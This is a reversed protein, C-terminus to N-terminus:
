KAENLVSEIFQTMLPTPSTTQLKDFTLGLLEATKDRNLFYMFGHEEIIGNRILKKVLTKGIDHGSIRADDIKGKFRAMTGKSHSRFTILIKRLKVFASKFEETYDGDLKVDTSFESFPPILKSSTNISLQIDDRNLRISPRHGSSLDLNFRNCEFFVRTDKYDSDDDYSQENITIDNSITVSNCICVMPPVIETSKADLILNVSHADITINSLLNGPTFDSVDSIVSTCIFEKNDNVRSMNINVEGANDEQLINTKGYDNRKDFSILSRYVHQVYDWKLEQKGIFEVMFYFLMYADKYQTSLYIQLFINEPDEIMLRALVYCEFVTNEFKRGNLFPHDEIFFKMQDSFESNIRAESSIKIQYSEGNINEMLAKCQELDCYAHALAKDYEDTTLDDKRKSIFDNVKDEKERRIIEEIVSIIFSIGSVKLKRYEELLAQYNNKQRIATSIADLVPAYGLFSANAHAQSNVYTGITEFIYKKLDRYATSYKESPKVRMDVYKNAQDLTFASIQLWAYSIGKTDLYDSVTDVTQTRGLMIVPISTNAADTTLSLVDDIFAYFANTGSKVLGEDLADIIFSQKGNKIAELYAGFGVGYEKVFSGTLSNSAVERAKGLDFVPINLSSSLYRCMATKGTAGAASILVVRPHSEIPTDLGDLPFTLFPEIYEPFDKKVEICEEKLTPAIGLRSLPTKIGICEKLKYTSITKGM